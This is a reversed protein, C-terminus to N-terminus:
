RTKGLEIPDRQIKRLLSGDDATPPRMVFATARVPGMGNVRVGILLRSAEGSGDLMEAYGWVEPDEVNFNNCVLTEVAGWYSAATTMEASLARLIERKREGPPSPAWDRSSEPFPLSFSCVTQPSLEPAPRVKGLLLDSLSGVAIPNRLRRLCQLWDQGEGCTVASVRGDSIRFVTRAETLYVLTTAEEKFVRFSQQSLRTFRTAGIWYDSWAEYHFVLDIYSDPLGCKPSGALWNASLVCLLLIRVLTM